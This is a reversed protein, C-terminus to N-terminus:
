SHPVAPPLDGVTVWGPSADVIRRVSNAIVASAGTQPNLGPIVAVHLPTSGEIWIEDRPPKGISGPDVHGLFSCAFWPRGAVIGVYRQEFGATTGAKVTLHRAEYDRDAILPAMERDIRELGIGLKGAVVSMSQPFGIHGTITGNRRNVDYEEATHGVGIRKLVTQGFGGLDVVREVRISSVDWAAGCATLVLADFAFGPNLGCGLISVGRKRALQDLENAVSRDVAWPYAAEEASCLVNSGAEVATRIDPAVDTLFSTTAIIVVDAEARLAREREARDFPGLVEIQSRRRLLIAVNTSLQGAGYLSVRLSNTLGL